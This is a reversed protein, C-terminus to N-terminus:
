GSHQWNQWLYNQAYPQPKLLHFWSSPFSKQSNTHTSSHLLLHDKAHTSTIISIFSQNTQQSHAWVKSFTYASCCVGQFINLDWWGRGAWPKGKCFFQTSDHLWSTTIIWNPIQSWLAPFAARDWQMYLFQSLLYRTGSEPSSLVGGSFSSSKM